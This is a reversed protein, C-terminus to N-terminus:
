LQGSQKMIDTEQHEGSLELCPSFREVCVGVSGNLIMGPKSRNQELGKREEPFGGDHNRMVM